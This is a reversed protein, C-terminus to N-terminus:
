TERANNRLGGGSSVRFAFSASMGGPRWQRPRCAARQQLVKIAPGPQMFDPLPVPFRIRSEGRAIMIGQRLHQEVGIDIELQGRLSVQSASERDVDIGHARGPLGVGSIVARVVVHHNRGPLSRIELHLLDAVGVQMVQQIWQRHLIRELHFAQLGQEVRDLSCRHILTKFLIGRSRAVSHRIRATSARM